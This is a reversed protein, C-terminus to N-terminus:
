LASTCTYNYIKDLGDIDKDFKNKEDNLNKAIKKSEECMKVINKFFYKEDNINGFRKTFEETWNQKFGPTVSKNNIYVHLHLPLQPFLQALLVVMNYSAGLIRHKSAESMLGNFLKEFYKKNIEAKKIKAESYDKEWFDIMDQIACFKNSTSADVKHEDLFEKYLKHYKKVFPVVKKSYNILIEQQLLREKNKSTLVASFFSKVKSEKEIEELDSNIAKENISYDQFLNIPQIKKSFEECESDFKKKDLNPLRELKKIKDEKKNNYFLFLVDSSLESIEKNAKKLCKCFEKREKSLELSDKHCSIYKMYKEKCEKLIRSIENKFYKSIGDKGNINKEMKELCGCMWEYIFRISITKIKSSKQRNYKESKM